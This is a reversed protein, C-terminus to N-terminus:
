LINDLKFFAIYASYIALLLVLISATILVKNKRRISVVIFILSLVFVIVALIKSFLIIYPALMKRIRRVVLM